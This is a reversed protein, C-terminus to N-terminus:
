NSSKSTKRQLFTKAKISCFVSFLGLSVITGLIIGTSKLNFIEAFVISIPINIIAGVLMTILTCNLCGVGSLLWNFVRNWAQVIVFLAMLLILSGEIPLSQGLWIAIVDDAVLAMLMTICIVCLWLLLMKKIAKLIWESEGKVNAETYASWLPTSIIAFITTVISFYQLVIAYPTVSEPGYLRSILIYDTSFIVVSSLQILFFKWSVKILESSGKLNVLKISPCQNKFVTSYLYVSSVLPLIAILSFKVLGLYLLSSETFQILGYIAILSLIDAALEIGAGYVPVHNAKTVSLIIGSVLKIGYFLLMWSVLENLEASMDSQANLVVAWDIFENAVLGVLLVPLVILTSVAYTTSIDVQASKYEKKTLSETLKNRLGNGLGFELLIMMEVISSLAMWLGFKIPDLYNLTMPVLMLRVGVGLGKLVFLGGINRIISNTRQSYKTCIYKSALNRM